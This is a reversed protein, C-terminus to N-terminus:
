VLLGGILRVLVESSEDRVRARDQPSAAAIAMGCGGLMSFTISATTAIPLPPLRGASVLATIIQEILGAAFQEECAKWDEWGLAIPGQRLVIEAYHSDVVRDLYANMAALAGAVPDEHVLYAEQIAAMSETETRELVARFLDQKDKFHHYVAGRTLQAASAVESLATKAYGREAFMAAATTLLAERTEESYQERRSRPRSM